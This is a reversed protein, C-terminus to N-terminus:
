QRAGFPRRTSTLLGRSPSGAAPPPATPPAAPPAAPAAAPAGPAYLADVAAALYALPANWNIAVENSAYSCVSDVYSRAPLRSPYGACGDQRGPNPGAVLFGPVPAAVGDAVSPRHHPRLPARGGVGTVFAYGTANRGLVYDLAAAATRLYRADGTLRYAQVLAVGQNAAMSNSGWEFDAEEMPVGYASRGARAVLTDALALLRGRLAATDAGAPLARRGDVLSYLGLTGVSAWTPVDAAPGATPAAAVFFSDRGTTLYLEAAAWRFEDALTRDGYAGTNVRPAYHRNLREQDYVSDPHQRAWRWAAAAERALSDALGPLARPFRRAVRAAYAATAAFDLAAATSKQVVYRPGSATAAHPMVFGDFEPNTLKHYVGGDAPDQMARMWRLNWLAEDVVDPVADGSEPVGTALSAAYGPFHEALALLTYTSIGSNVVYKNYDGADYWGGPAALRAGAPRGPGAASPHVLVGTDPHGAPRAYAGAYAPPLAVSVRQFYFARVAARALARTGGGGVAFPWSRGVGPVVLVYRGPRRLAGFEAARVVEGSPAWRRAPALQGAFVPAGGGEPEVTFRGPAGDAGVVVAMKPGTAFFEVQNLRIGAAGADAAPPPVDVGPGPGPARPRAGACAAAVLAAAALAAASALV